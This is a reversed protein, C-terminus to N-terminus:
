HPIDDVIVEASLPDNDFRLEFESYILEKVIARDRKRVRPETHINQCTIMLPWFILLPQHSLLDCPLFDAEALTQHPIHPFLQPIHPNFYGRQCIPIPPIYIPSLLELSHKRSIFHPIHHVRAHDNRSLPIGLRLLLFDILLSKCRPVLVQLDNGLQTQILLIFRFRIKLHSIRVSLLVRACIMVVSNVLTYQWAYLKKIQQRKSSKTLKGGRMPVLCKSVKQWMEGHKRRIIDARKDFDIELRYHGLM